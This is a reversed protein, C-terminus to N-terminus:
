LSFLSFCEESGMLNVHVFFFVHFTWLGQARSQWTDFFIFDWRTKYFVFVDVCTSVCFCFKDDFERRTEWHSEKLILTHISNLIFTSFYYCPKSCYYLIFLFYIFGCMWLCIAPLKRSAGKEKQSNEAALHAATIAGDSRWAQACACIEVDM